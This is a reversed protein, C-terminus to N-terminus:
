EIIEVIRRTRAEVIVPRDNVVTDLYGPKVYHEITYGYGPKVHYERPMAYFTVGREPLVAGVRVEGRYQFSPNRERVVYERFRPRDEVGVIGGATGTATGIAGVSGAARDVAAAGEEAGAIAGQAYAALPLSVLVFTAVAFTKIKMIAGEQTIRGGAVYSVFHPKAAM